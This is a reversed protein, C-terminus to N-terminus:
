DAREVEVVLQVQDGGFFTRGFEFPRGQADANIGEVCLVPRSQLQGLRHAMAADPLRATIESRRRIYDVIGFASLARSVSGERAIVDGIGDLRPVFYHECISLARAEAMGETIVRALATGEDVELARAIRPTATENSCALVRHSARLGSAALNESFRTRRGLTYDIAREAVFTGRGHIVRVAGKAALRALAQRVTHRNVGFHTALVQESPLREGPAFRGAEIDAALAVEITSWVSTGQGRVIAAAPSELAPVPVPVPVSQEGDNM